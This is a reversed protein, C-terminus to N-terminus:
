ATKQGRNRLEDMRAMEDAVQESFTANSGLEPRGMPVLSLNGAKGTKAATKAFKGPTLLEYAEIKTLLPFAKLEGSKRFSLHSLNASKLEGMLGRALDQEIRGSHKLNAIRRELHKAEVNAAKAFHSMMAPPMNSAPEVGSVDGAEMDLGDSDGMDAADGDPDGHKTHAAAQLALRLSKVDTVDEPVMLGIGRLMKVIQAVDSDNGAGDDIKEDAMAPGEIRTAQSLYDTRHKRGAADTHFGSLYALGGKQQDRQVPKPTAAVHGVTLGEWTKGKEDTWDWDLRPSVKGIRAFQRADDPDEIKPRVYLKGDAGRKFEEAEGFYGRALWANQHLDSLYAPVARSDHEWCLPVSLGAALMARGQREANATDARTYEVSRGDALRYRGPALVEIWPAASAM